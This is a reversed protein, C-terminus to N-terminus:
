EQHMTWPTVAERCSPFREKCKLHAAERWWRRRDKSKRKLLRIVEGSRIKKGWILKCLNM